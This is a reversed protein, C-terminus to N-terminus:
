VVCYPVPFTPEIIVHFTTVSIIIATPEPLTIDM